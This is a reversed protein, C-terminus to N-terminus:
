DICSLEAISAALVQILVACSEAAGFCCTQCGLSDGSGNSVPDAATFIPAFGRRGANMSKQGIVETCGFTPRYLFGGLLYESGEITPQIALVISSVVPAV